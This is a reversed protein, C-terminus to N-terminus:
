IKKRNYSILLENKASEINEWGYIKVWKNKELNKYNKFFHIIREKIILSIESINNIHDFEKTISNHPVVFLKIDEGSEDSMRLLGIPRCLIVSGLILPFYSHIMVDIPDGDLSITNNVYGYNFPYFMATPVFRDVFPIGTKKDIEYKVVPCSNLSIEIIVYLDNPFNKGEPVNKLNM